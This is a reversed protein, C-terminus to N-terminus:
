ECLPLDGCKKEGEKLGKLDKKIGDKQAACYKDGQYPINGKVEAIIKPSQIVVDYGNANVNELSEITEKEQEKSIIEWASLRKIFNETLTTTILNNIPSIAIKLELLDSLQIEDKLRIEKECIKSIARRLVERDIKANNKKPSDM